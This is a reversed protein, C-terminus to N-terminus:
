DIGYTVKILKLNVTGMAVQISQKLWVSCRHCRSHRWLTSTQHWLIATHRWLLAHTSNKSRSHSTMAHEHATRSRSHSTMAHKHAVLGDCHPRAVDYLSTDSSSQSTMIYFHGKWSLGASLCSQEERGALRDGGCHRGRMIPTSIAIKFMTWSEKSPVLQFLLKSM